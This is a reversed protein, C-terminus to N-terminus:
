LKKFFDSVYLPKETKSDYIALRVFPKDDADIGGGIVGIKQDKKVIDGKKVSVSSLNTYTVLYENYGLFITYRNNQKKYQIEQVIGEHITRVADGKKGTITAGFGQQSLTGGEVPLNLGRTNRSFGAGVKNGKLMKQLEAVAQDHLKQQKRQEDIAKKERKSLKNYARQAEVRSDELVRRERKLVRDISDLESARRQLTERQEVIRAAHCSISDALAKREETIHEIEAMRRAAETLSKSAFLYNTANNQAYNRYAVRAAEAYLKRNYELVGELSDVEEDCLGVERKVADHEDEIERIYDNRMRMEQEIATVQAKASKKDRKLKDVEAKANNLEKKYQELRRRQEETRKDQAFGLLPTTTLLIVLTLIKVIKSM